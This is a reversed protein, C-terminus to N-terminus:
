ILIMFNLMISIARCYVVLVLNWGFNIIIRILTRLYSVYISVFLTTEYLFYLISLLDIFVTLIFIIIFM